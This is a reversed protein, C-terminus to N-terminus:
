VGSNVLMKPFPLSAVLSLWVIVVSVTLGVFIRHTLVADTLPKQYLVGAGTVALALSGASLAALKEHFSVGAGISQAQVRKYADAAKKIAELMKPAIKAM